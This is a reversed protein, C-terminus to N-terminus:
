SGIEQMKLIERYVNDAIGVGGQAAIQKTYEENLMSRFIKEGNGGGFTGETEIGSWMQEVFTQLFVAEFDQAAQRAEVENKVNLNVEKPKNAELFAQANINTLADM